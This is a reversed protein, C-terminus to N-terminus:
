NQFCARPNVGGHQILLALWLNAALTLIASVALLWMGVTKHRWAVISTLIALILQPAGWQMAKAFLVSVWINTSEIDM